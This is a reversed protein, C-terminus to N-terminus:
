TLATDPQPAGSTLPSEGPPVPLRTLTMGFYVRYALHIADPSLLRVENRVGDVTEILRDGSLTVRGQSTPRSCTLSQTFHSEPSTTQWWAMPVFDALPRPRRELRYQPEGDRLVDIDGHPADLLLFEGDPDLQPDVSFLPLPHRAFRGFGVDVLWDGSDLAVVIAAHDLPPGPTGDAHFVQAAHLSADYGLARLLAAFLGNLEYCFGGRRRHVVKEFLADEDLVVPEGLHSSLNEFPVAALHREQLLRLTALDPAAPRAVGLRDLYADIDM